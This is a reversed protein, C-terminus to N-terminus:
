QVLNPNVGPFIATPLHFEGLFILDLTQLNNLESYFQYIVIFHSPYNRLM